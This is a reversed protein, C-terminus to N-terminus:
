YYNFNTKIWKYFVDYSQKSYKFFANSSTDSSAGELHLIKIDPCYYITVENIRAKMALYWEENYLFMNDDFLPHLTHVAEQTAIIFSGHPSFIKYKTKKFLRAYIFFLERSLRTYIHTLTYLFKNNKKLAYHTIEFLFPLKWPTSPNQRKNSIMRTEPAIIANPENFSELCSLDKIIVDSNSVVLYKFYYHKIAYAIGINNGYGYGKNEIPIFNANNQLAIKKCKELSSSDFFSNVVIVKADSICFSNFFDNLVDINKYVLVVFVYKFEKKM